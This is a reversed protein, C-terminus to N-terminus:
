WYPVSIVQLARGDDPTVRFNCGRLFRCDGGTRGTLIRLRVSQVSPLVVIGPDPPDILETWFSIKSPPIYATGKLAVNERDVGIYTDCTNGESNWGSVIWKPCNCSRM